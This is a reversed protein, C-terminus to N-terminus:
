AGLGPAPGRLPRRDAPPSCGTRSRLRLDSTGNSMPRFAITAGDPSWTPGARDVGDVVVDQELAGGPWRFISAGRPRRSRRLRWASAARIGPPAPASTAPELVASEGGHRDADRGPQREADAVRSRRQVITRHSLRDLPRGPQAGGRRQDIRRASARRRSAPGRSLVNWRTRPVPAEHWEREFDDATIGLVTEVADAHVYLTAVRYSGRGRHRGMARRCIGLIRAGGIRSSSRSPSTPSGRCREWEAADRLWM